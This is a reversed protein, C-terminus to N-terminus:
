GVTSQIRRNCRLSFLKILILDTMTSPSPPKMILGGHSFVEDVPASTAPVGLVHLALISLLTINKSRKRWFKIPNIDEKSEVEVSLNNSLQAETIDPTFRNLIRPKSEVEM